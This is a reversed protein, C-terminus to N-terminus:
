EGRRQNPALTRYPPPGHTKTAINVVAGDVDPIGRLIAGIERKAGPSRACGEVLVLRGQVTVWLSADRLIRAREFRARVERAIDADYMYASPKECKKALWCRTGRELRHHTQRLKQEETMYPGLPEPCAAVGDRVRFFPDNFANRVIEQASAALPALLAVLLLERASSVRPMADVGPM